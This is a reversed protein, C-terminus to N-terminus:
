RGCRAPIEASRTGLLERRSRWHAFCYVGATPYRLVSAIDTGHKHVLNNTARMLARQSLAGDLPGICIRGKCVMWFYFGNITSTSTTPITKPMALSVTSVCASSRAHTRDKASTCGTSAECPSGLGQQPQACVLRHTEVAQVTNM